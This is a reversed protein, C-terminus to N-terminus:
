ECGSIYNNCSWPGSSTEWTSNSHTQSFGFTWPKGWRVELPSSTPQSGHVLRIKASWYSRFYFDTINLHRPSRTYIGETVPIMMTGKLIVGFVSVLANLSIQFPWNPLTDGNHVVLTIVIAILSVLALTFALIETPWGKQFGAAYSKHWFNGQPIGEHPLNESSSFPEKLHRSSSGNSQISAEDNSGQLLPERPTLNGDTKQSRNDYAGM